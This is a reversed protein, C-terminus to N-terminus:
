LKELLQRNFLSITAYFVPEKNYFLKGISLLVDLIVSIIYKSASLNSRISKLWNYFDKKINVSCFEM